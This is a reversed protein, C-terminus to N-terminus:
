LREYADKIATILNQAVVTYKIGKGWLTNIQIIVRDNDFPISSVKIHPVSDLSAEERVGVECMKVKSTVIM